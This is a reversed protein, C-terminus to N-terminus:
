KCKCSLALIQSELPGLQGHIKQPSLSILATSCPSWCCRWCGKLVTTGSSFAGIALGHATCFTSYVLQLTWGQKFLSLFKYSWTVTFDRVPCSWSPVGLWVQGFLGFLLGFLLSWSQGITNELWSCCCSTARRGVLPTCRLKKKYVKSWNPSKFISWHISWHLKAIHREREHWSCVAAWALLVIFSPSVHNKWTKEWSKVPVMASLFRTALFRRHVNCCSIGFSQESVQWLRYPKTRNHYFTMQYALLCIWFLEFLNLCYTQTKKKLLSPFDSVYQGSLLNNIGHFATLFQQHMSSWAVAAVPLIM